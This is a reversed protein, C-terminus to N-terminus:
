VGDLVRQELQTRHPNLFYDTKEKGGYHQAMERPYMGLGWPNPIAANLEKAEKKWRQVTENILSTQEPTLIDEGWYVTTADHKQSTLIYIYGKKVFGSNYMPTGEKASKCEIFYLKGDLKVIFDPSNHTGCPQSIFSNDPVNPAAGTHLWEDREAIPVKRNIEELGFGRFIDEVADEHKAVNHVKGSAAAHNKYYKMQLIKEIIEKM